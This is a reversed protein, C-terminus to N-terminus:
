KVMTKNMSTMKRDIDGFEKQVSGFEKKVNGLEKKINGLEKDMNGFSKSFMQVLDRKIKVEIAEQFLFSQLPFSNKQINLIALRVLTANVENGNKELNQALKSQISGEM